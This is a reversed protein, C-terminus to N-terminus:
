LIIQFLVKLNENENNVQRYIVQNMNNGLIPFKKRLSSSSVGSIKGCTFTLQWKKSTCMDLFYSINKIHSVKAGSLYYHLIYEKRRM